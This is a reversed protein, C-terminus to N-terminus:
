RRRAPALLAGVAMDLLNALWTEFSLVPRALRPGDDPPRDQLRARDACLHSCASLVSVLREVALDSGIRRNLHEYLTTGVHLAIFSADELMDGLRIDPRTALEAVIKTWARESPGWQLYEADPRIMVEVLSAFDAHRSEGVLQAYVQERVAEIRPLHRQTLALLLGDRDGFHFQLASNNRQGAALRIERLSVSSVGRESWLRETADLLRDRTRLGRTTAGREHRATGAIATGPRQRASAEARRVWKRLTEATIGFRAAISGMAAWQSTYEGENDLVMRVARDRVEPPFSTRTTPM